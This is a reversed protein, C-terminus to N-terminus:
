NVWFASNKLYDQESDIDLSVSQDNIEILEFKTGFLDSIKKNVESIKLTGRFYKIAESFADRIVLEKCKPDLLKRVSYVFDVYDINEIKNPNAYALNAMRFGRLKNNESNYLDANLALSAINNVLYNFCKKINTRDVPEQYIPQFMDDVCWFYRRNEFENYINEKGIIAYTLDAQTNLSKKIFDEYEEHTAKPIDCPVFLAGSNFNSALTGEYGHRANASLSGVQQLIKIKKQFPNDVGYKSIMSNIRDKEGIVVLDDISEAQLTNDIVFKLMPAELIQGKYNISIQKLPKYKGWLYDEGYIKKLKNKQRVTKPSEKADGGALIVASTM